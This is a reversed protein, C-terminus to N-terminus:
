VSIMGTVGVIVHDTLGFVVGCLYFTGLEFSALTM